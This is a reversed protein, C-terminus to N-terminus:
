YAATGTSPGNGQSRGTSKCGMVYMIETKEWCPLNWGFTTNSHNANREETNALDQTPIEGPFRSINTTRGLLHQSLVKFNPWSRKRGCGKCNIKWKNGKWELNYIRPWQFRTKLYVVFWYIDCIEGATFLVTLYYLSTFYYILRKSFQRTVFEKRNKKTSVVRTDKNGLQCLQFL